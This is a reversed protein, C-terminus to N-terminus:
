VASIQKIYSGVGKKLHPLFHSFQFAKTLSVQRSNEGKGNFNLVRVFVDSKM